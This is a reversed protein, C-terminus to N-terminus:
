NCTATDLIVPNRHDKSGKLAKQKVGTGDLGNSMTVFISIKRVDTRLLM